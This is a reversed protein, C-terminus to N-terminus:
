VHARGIKTAPFSNVCHLEFRYSAAGPVPTWSFLPDSVFQYNNVPTLLEPQLYWQKRFQRTPSWDAIAAGAHARVRWYYNM